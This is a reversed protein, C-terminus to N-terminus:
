GPSYRDLLHEAHTRAAASTSEGALMRAVETVRESGEVARVSAAGAGKDVVFHREAFAAVQGLHTVVIVQASQALRDLRSGLDLAAAGGVGADVEDFVYTPMQSDTCVLELALMVRSLEGGSAAKSIPRAPTGPGAALMIQVDDLGSRHPHVWQGDIVLLDSTPDQADSGGGDADSRHEGARQTVVVDVSASGMALERLESTVRQGLSAAAERRLSSLANGSAAVDNRAVVIQETLEEVREDSDDIETLRERAQQSWALVETTTTGYNRLLATLQARRQQVDALRQPDSELAGAYAGLESAIDATLYSVEALRGALDRLQEDHENMLTLEAAARGLLDLAPVAQDFSDDGALVQHAGTAATRLGDVHALRSEEEALVNEEGERPAVADIEGLAARLMQAERGRETRMANMQALRERARRWTELDAQYTRRRQHLVAGGFEDLLDRHQDPHRLRWQDAQGHIAVLHEGIERLVGLPASRGGVFARSRGTSRVSRSLVLGEGVEGGAEAARQASPHDPAVDIDADVSVQDTGTRVLQSEARDGLLLGLGTVVMTKGAGTEGTVVNLGPCLEMEADTIM